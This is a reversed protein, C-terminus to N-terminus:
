QSTANECREDFLIEAFAKGFAFLLNSQRNFSRYPITIFYGSRKLENKQVSVEDIGTM